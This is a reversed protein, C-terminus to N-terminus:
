RSSKTSSATSPRCRTPRRAHSATLRGLFPELVAWFRCNFPLPFRAHFISFATFAACRSRLSLCHLPLSLVAFACLFATCLCHFCLSLVLFPLAFASLPCHCACVSLCHLCVSLWLLCASMWHFWLSLCHFQTPVILACPFATCLCHLCLSLVFFPLAFATFACRSCLSLCHLPASHTTAFRPSTSIRRRTM